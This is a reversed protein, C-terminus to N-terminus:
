SGCAIRGSMRRVRDRVSITLTAQATMSETGQWRTPGVQRLRVTLEKAQWEEFTFPFLERAHATPALAVMRGVLRIVARDDAAAFRLRRDGKLSWSCGTGAAGAATVQASTMPQPFPSPADAATAANSAVVLLVMPAVRGFARATLSTSGSPRRRDQEPDDVM